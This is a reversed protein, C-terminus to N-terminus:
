KKLIAQLLDELSRRWGATNFDPSESIHRRINQYANRIFIRSGNEPYITSFGPTYLVNEDIFACSTVDCFCTRKSEFMSVSIKYLLQRRKKTMYRVMFWGNEEVMKSIICSCKKLKHVVFLVRGSSSDNILYLLWIRIYIIYTIKIRTIQVCLPKATQIANLQDWRVASWLLVLLYDMSVVYIRNLQDWRVAFWLLVLLYDILV